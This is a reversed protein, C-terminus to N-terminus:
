LVKCCKVINTVVKQIQISKKKKYCEKKPFHAFAGLSSCIRLHFFFHFFSDVLAWIHALRLLCLFTVSHVLLCGNALCCVRGEFSIRRYLSLKVPARLSYTAESVLWPSVHQLQRSPLSVVSQLAWNLPPKWVWAWSSIFVLVRHLMHTVQLHLVLWSSCVQSEM